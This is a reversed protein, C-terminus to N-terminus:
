VFIQQASKIDPQVIVESKISNAILCNQHAEEMVRETEVIESLLEVTVSPKLIIKTIQYMGDVFELLGEAPCHYTKVTIKKRQAFSMFTTMQCVNVAAVLFDEPTWVGAEGKFEVPASVHISPKENSSIHGSKNQTWDLNTHYTFTKYKKPSPATLTDV